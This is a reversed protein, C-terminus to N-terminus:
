SAAAKLGAGIMAGFMGGAIAGVVAGPVGTFVLMAWPVKGSDAARRASRIVIVTAAIVGVVAGFV